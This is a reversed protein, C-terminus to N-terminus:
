LRIIRYRIIILKEDLQYIVKIYRKLCEDIRQWMREVINYVCPTMRKDTGYVLMSSINRRIDPRRKDSVM